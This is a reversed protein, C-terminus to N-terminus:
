PQRRMPGAAAPMGLPSFRSTSCSYRAASYGTFQSHRDGFRAVRREVRQIHAIWRPCSFVGIVRGRMGDPAHLQVLTQAMSNFSLEVFGAVFLLTIAVAYTDIECFGARLVLGDRARIRHTCEAAAPRREGINGRRWGAPQTPRSCYGTLSDANAHGLDTAFGPMQATRTASSFRRPGILVTMSLLVQNERGGEHDGLYRSVM